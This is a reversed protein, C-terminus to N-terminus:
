IWNLWRLDQYEIELILIMIAKMVEASCGGRIRIFSVDIVEPLVVPRRQGSGSTHGHPWSARWSLLNGERRQHAQSIEKSCRQRSCNPRGRWAHM